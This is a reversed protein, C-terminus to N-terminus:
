AYSYQILGPNPAYKCIATYYVPHFGYAYSGHPCHPSFGWWKSLDGSENDIYFYKINVM